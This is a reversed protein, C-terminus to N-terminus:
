TSTAGAPSPRAAGGGMGAISTSNAPWARTRIGAETDGAKAAATTSASSRRHDWNRAPNRQGSAPLERDIRNALCQPKLAEQTSAPAWCIGSALLATALAPGVAPTAHIVAM